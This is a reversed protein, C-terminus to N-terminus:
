RTAVSLVRKITDCFIHIDDVSLTPHVQFMLSTDGLEKAVQFRAKPVIGTEIFAKEMYLEPCSGGFCPVGAERIAQMIRDRDWGSKLQEPRIFVYYKYYSHFYDPTPVTVRLSPIDQFCQTFIDANRRRINIWDNLKQLQIRGLAGQMETMRWNTGFSDHTWKFALSQVNQQIIDSNKGHDKYAWAKKWLEIDNLLLMGGEGGTTMIKDQCFSFAAADGFSGVFKGKYKAGHAQACDEIVKLNHKKALSLIPDMDCSWGALHVVIIAKTKPTLVKSITEATINQSVADIDAVIPRAGRAVVCSATAIFTRCPVIVDDGHGIGLAYLALELAVTGNALAIGYSCGIYEAFEKEFLKCEEGTWYNIKGSSLVRQVADKEDDAFYPWSKSINM